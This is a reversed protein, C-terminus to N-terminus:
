DSPGFRRALDHLLEAVAARDSEAHKLKSLDDDVLQLVEDYREKVLETLSTRQSELDDRFRSELTEFRADVGDLRSSLDSATEANTDIQERVGDGFVEKLEGLTTKLSEVTESIQTLLDAHQRTQDEVADFRSSQDGFLLSRIQALEGGDALTASTKPQAGSEGAASRDESSTQPNAGAAAEDSCPLPVLQTESSPIKVLDKFTAKRESM